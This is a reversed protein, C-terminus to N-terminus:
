KRQRSRKRILKYNNYLRKADINEASAGYILSDAATTIEAAEGGLSLLRAIVDQVEGSTTSKPNKGTIGCAIKRTRLYLARIRKKGRGLKYRIVFIAEGLRKRFIVCLVAAVGAAAFAYFVLKQTEKQESVNVAYKTGDVELWGAGPIYATAFAHAQDARIEYRGYLDISAVDTKILFGETYRAPVGAARLLLASATAFDTCIGRKSTFLFYEANLEAPVFNLDYAFNEEGFWQEIAKAKDYDNDLGATISMALGKIRPTIADDLTRAYYTFAERYDDKFARAEDELIIEEEVAEDLLAYYELQDLGSLYRSFEAPPDTGYFRVWYTANRGFAEETFIEDKTNRYIPLNRGGIMAYFTGSPHMVVNTNSGDTVQITMDNGDLGGSAAPIKLLEGAYDSLKGDEAAIRLRESLQAYNLVRQQGSWDRHGYSLDDIHRWGDKGKYRDFSQSIINRPTDTSVYFLIDESPQNDGVNPTSSQSFGSMARTGYFQQATFRTVDLYKAYPTRDSRPIVLILIAAAVGFIGITALREKKAKPDDVYRNDLPYEVRSVGMVAVFYSAAMFAMLWAPLAGVTRAGLILPALAPLLLFCPRPLRVTFYFVPYTIIFAFMAITAGALMLDFDGIEGYIFEMLAFRGKVASVSSVGLLMASFLTVFTVFSILRRNRVAYFLMYVGACLATMVLTTPLLYDECIIFMTVTSIACLYVIAALNEAGNFVPRSKKKM